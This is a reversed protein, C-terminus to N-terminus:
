PLQLKVAEDPLAFSQLFRSCTTRSRNEFQFHTLDLPKKPSGRPYPIVKRPCIKTLLVSSSWRTYIKFAETHVNLGDGHIGAVCACTSFCTRTNGAYMPVNQIYVRLGKQIQVRPNEAHWVVGCVCVGRGCGCGCRCVGCVVGRCVVCCLMVCLM